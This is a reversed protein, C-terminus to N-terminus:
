NMDVKYCKNNEFNSSMFTYENLKYWGILIIQWFHANWKTLDLTRSQFHWRKITIM